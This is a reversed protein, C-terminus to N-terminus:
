KRFVKSINICSACYFKYNYALIYYMRYIEGCEACDEFNYHKCVPMHTVHIRKCGKCLTYRLKEDVVESKFRDLLTTYASM